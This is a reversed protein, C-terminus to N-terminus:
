DRYEVVIRIPGGDDGSIQLPILKAALKYFETPESEAWNL